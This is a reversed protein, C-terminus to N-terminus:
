IKPFTTLEVALHRKSFKNFEGSSPMGKVMEAPVEYIGGKTNSMSPDVADYMPNSFDRSKASADRGNFESDM